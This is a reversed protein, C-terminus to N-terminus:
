WQSNGIGSFDKFRGAEFNQKFSDWTNDSTRKDVEEKTHEEIYEDIIRVIAQQVGDRDHVGFLDGIKKLQYSSLVIYQQLINPDGKINVNEM